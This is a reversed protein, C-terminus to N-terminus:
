GTGHGDSSSSGRSCRLVRLGVYFPFVFGSALSFWFLIQVVVAIGIVWNASTSSPDGGLVASVFLGTVIGPLISLFLLFATLLQDPTHPFWGLGGGEDRITFLHLYLLAIPVAISFV